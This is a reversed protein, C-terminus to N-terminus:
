DKDGSASLKLLERYVHNKRAPSGYQARLASLFDTLRDRNAPSEWLSRDFYIRGDETLITTPRQIRFFYNYDLSQTTKDTSPTNQPSEVRELVGAQNVRAVLDLRYHSGITLTVTEQPIKYRGRDITHTSWDDQFGGEILVRTTGPHRLRDVLSLMRDKAAVLCSGIHSEEAPNPLADM